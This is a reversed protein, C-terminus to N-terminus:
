ERNKYYDDVIANYLMDGLLVYGRHTFHIRDKRVLGADQWGLVSQRGGMIGYLDWVAAGAEQALEYMAQQVTAGNYNYTLTRRSWRYSDNNTIFIIDCDPNVARVHAVLRRYNNKFREVNFDAQKCASDNIGLAFIALDPRVLPLEAPMDECRDLWTSLMAGNVGSAFYNIGSRGSIPQIGRFTFSAGPKISFGVTVSDTMEPLRFMYGIGTSDEEFHLTDAGSLVIPFAEGEPYGLVRVADFTYCSDASIRLNFSVTATSDETRAALGTIGYRPKFTKSPKSARAGTWEGTSSCIYTKDQNTSALRYPFLFGRDGKLGPVANQLNTMLRYSFIGGQVHSGGIHWINIQGPVGSTLSDLLAHFHGLAMTDGPFRLAATSDAHVCPPLEGLEKQQIAPLQAHLGSCMTLCALTLVLTVMRSRM